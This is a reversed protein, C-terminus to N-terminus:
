VDDKKKSPTTNKGFFFEKYQELNTEFFFRNRNENIEENIDKVEYEGNSNKFKFSSDPALQFNSTYRVEQPNSDYSYLLPKIKGDTMYSMLYGPYILVDDDKMKDEVKEWDLSTQNLVM